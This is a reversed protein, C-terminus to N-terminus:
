IEELILYTMCRGAKVNTEIGTAAVSRLDLYIKDGAEVDIVAECIIESYNENALQRINQYTLTYSNKQIILGYIRSGTESERNLNIKATAKITMKKNINIANNSLSFATGKSILTSDLPIQVYQDSSTTITTVTSLYAQIVNKNNLKKISNLINKIQM